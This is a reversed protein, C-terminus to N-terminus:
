RQAPRVVSPARSALIMPAAAAGTLLSGTAVWPNRTNRQQPVNRTRIDRDSGGCGGDASAGDNQVVRRQRDDLTLAGHTGGVEGVNGSQQGETFGWGQQLDKGLKISSWIDDDKIALANRMWAAKPNSTMYTQKEIDGSYATGLRTESTTILLWWRGSPGM